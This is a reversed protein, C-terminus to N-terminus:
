NQSGPHNPNYITSGTCVRYEVTSGDLLTDVKAADADISEHDKHNCLQVDMTFGDNLRNAYAIAEAPTKHWEKEADVPEHDQHGCLQVDVTYGDNLRNAYAHAEEPTKHWTKEAAMNSM